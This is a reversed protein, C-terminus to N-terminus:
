QKMMLNDYNSLLRNLLKIQEILNYKEYPDKEKDRKIMLEEIESKLYEYYVGLNIMKFDM